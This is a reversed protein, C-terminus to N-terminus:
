TSRGKGPKEHRFAYDRYGAGTTDSRSPQQHSPYRRRSKNSRRRCRQWRAQRAGGGPPFCAGAPRLGAGTRRGPTSAGPQRAPTEPTTSPPTRQEPLPQRVREVLSRTGTTSDPCVPRSSGPREATPLAVPVLRVATGFGKVPHGCSASGSYSLLVPPSCGGSGARRVWQLPPPGIPPLGRHPPGPGTPVRPEPGDWGSRRSRVFDTTREYRRVRLKEPKFQTLVLM